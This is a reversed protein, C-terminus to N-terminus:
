LDEPGVIPAVTGEISGNLHYTIGRRSGPGHDRCTFGYHKLELPFDFGRDKACTMLAKVMEEHTFSISSFVRPKTIGNILEM